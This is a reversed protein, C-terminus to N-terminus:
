EKAIKITQSNNDQEIKLLYLGKNFNNGLELKNEAFGKEILQGSITTLTYNFKGSKEIQFSNTFPNPYALVSNEAENDLMNTLINEKFEIYNINVYSVSGITLRLIHTGATLSINNVSTTTWTQWSGTNPIAISSVLNNGDITLAITRGDGNCASRVDLKYNGTKTVNITYELWENATAFGLNYGGGVDQCTELDVDENTRFNISPTVASGPSDDSYAIGNGGVDYHEMQIIGPIVTANNNFPGQPINIKIRVTDTASNGANDTAVAKITYTGAAVNTWDYGYPSANDTTLLTSGNYFKVNSISGSTVTATATISVNAPSTFTANNVPTSIKVTPASSKPLLTLMKTAYREGLTRYSASTFHLNDGIHPLGSASIVHSNPVVNPMTAIISNHAGCAGGQATTVLEGVLLPTQTPNLGLDKILNDYIAKVKGPWTQQTNNTEGQHLLIGKIVGDKQAIKAVEVLRAYPNGGYANINGIMWSPAMAVYSAYNVKDFLAIDCGGIAVPVIGIKINTPLNTTMTRAFYDAPSLGTNCRVTPPSYTQWKGVTYTRGGQSCNVAGMVQVRSNIVRDQTEITGAGEMNSQGFCLYIHLNPDQSKLGLLSIFLYIFKIKKM